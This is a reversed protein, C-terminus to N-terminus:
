TKRKFHYDGDVDSKCFNSVLEFGLYEMFEIVKNVKPAGKNYDMHQAELIVDKCSKITEMAGMLVDIEAGQVDMKILDPVPWNNLRRLTDLTLTKRVTAHQETFAGTTEIYYSNGGPNDKDEYFIIENDDKNSLVSIAYNHNSQKLFKEVSTAADMLYYDADPWAEKAKRTWHLVCAGIDYVVTPSINMQKLYEAHARPLLDQQAIKELHTKETKEKVQYVTQGIHNCRITEDAWVTFGNERAKKCFYVDESITNRHDIASQYYFHPYKIKRFVDSKILVCGMGCAAIQFIGAGEIEEYPINTCGGNPTDKYIELTHTNPIRQIYLGSIVDKDASIMKTLTDKPLVVDSDVSLLYDYRMAWEAILNRIQDIQYGYFFQFDTQYGDPVDLDYVSKFTEPEIYKNTPIAILIKKNNKNKLIMQEKDIEQIINKKVNTEIEYKTDPLTNKTQSEHEFVSDNNVRNTETYGLSKLIDNVIYNTTEPGEVIIVPKFKKITNLGGLIVEYETKETDLWLLDCAEIDLSDLTIVECEGTQNMNLEFKGSNNFQQTHGHVKKNSSGLGVNLSEINKDACNKILIDYAIKNPEFTYVKKYYKSLLVPYLGQNGGAQVVVNNKNSSLKSILDSFGNNWDSMILDWTIDNELRTFEANKIETNANKNQEEGNIKYDNLPNLDNYVVMIEKVAIPNKAYSITERFLPNDAGSMMWKDDVIYNEKVIKKAISGSMTRLHTYPIKWPYSNGDKWDQAILPINDALSWMSGYTFDHGQDYIDNYYHFIANNNILWDDGDLLMVIDGEKVFDKVADLQNQIAGKRTDNQRIIIKSKTEDSFESVMENFNIKNDSNDDILIHLYNDYDQQAISKVHNQMYADANRFPSIVVIRRQSGYSNYVRRDEINNFRRGYVRAVKDNIRSVSRYKEVPYPKETMTHFHQDWQLAVTNWGAIDKVVNCYNQKQYHLYSNNYADLVTQVFKIAQTNEDINRFLANNTSSYPIKYCAQEIATEELAGFINTVIPTNYLLSELSSIGFTEPFATPYLMMNANALIEAIEYQPIVGTFTVGEPKSDILDNVMKEQADPEAGERFRYYGGICTLRAEPIHKKIEPWIRTVLPILGKTASANYVFHSKDKKSLDVDEIHRVAGNRTQFFKHKLVEFNRKNGHDCSTVYWSHFDSLTFVEDIEGSMLLQELTQDGECFTDHMWIVTKNARSVMKSYQNRALFPNVSRSSIVIDHTHVSEDDTFKSHDVYQVGNYLGPAAKSDICNNYVTISHGLKALEASMLIVASESGGLGRGKLTNGDYTLGLLDIIAIKM